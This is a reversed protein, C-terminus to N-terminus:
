KRSSCALYAFYTCANVVSGVFALLGAVLRPVEIARVTL